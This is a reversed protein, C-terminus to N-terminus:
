PMIDIEQSFGTSSPHPHYEQVEVSLKTEVPEPEIAEPKTTEQTATEFVESQRTIEEVPPVEDERAEEERHLRLEYPGIHIISDCDVPTESDIVSSNVFTGNQSGFDSLSCERNSITLIAHRGSVDSDPLNIHCRESRGIIYVGDELVLKDEEKGDKNIRLVIM